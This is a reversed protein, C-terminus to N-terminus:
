YWNEGWTLFCSCLVSSGPVARVILLEFCLLFLWCFLCLNLNFKCFYFLFVKNSLHYSCYKLNCSSISFVDAPFQRPVLFGGIQILGDSTFLTIRDEPVWHIAAFMHMVISLLWWPAPLLPLFCSFCYQYIVIPPCFIRSWRTELNMIGLSSYYCLYWDFM